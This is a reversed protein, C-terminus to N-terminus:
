ARMALKPKFPLLTSGRNEGQTLHAIELTLAVGQAKEMRAMSFWAQYSQAATFGLKHLLRLSKPNDVFVGASIREAGLREGAECIVARCAEIMYGHGWFPTGLWYGLELAADPERRFIEVVGMLEGGGITIAYAFSLGRRAQACKQMVWFEASLEPFPATIAASMSAIQQAGGLKSLESVDGLGIPRLVLRETNITKRM